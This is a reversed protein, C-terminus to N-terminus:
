HFRSDIIYFDFKNTTVFFEFRINSNKEFNIEIKLLDEMSFDENEMEFYVQRTDINIVRFRYDTWIDYKFNYLSMDLKTYEGTNINFGIDNHEFFIAKVWGYRYVRFETKKVGQKM